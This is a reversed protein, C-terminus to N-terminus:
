GVNFQTCQASTQPIRIRHRKAQRESQGQAGSEHPSRAQAQKGWTRGLGRLRRLRGRGPLGFLDDDLALALPGLFEFDLDGVKGFEGFSQEIRGLGDLDDGVLHELVARDAVEVVRKAVHRADAQACALERKLAVRGRDPAEDRSRIYEEIADAIESVIVAVGEVQLLDLHQLAGGRDQEPATRGPADDILDALKGGEIRHHGPRDCEARIQGPARGDIDVLREGIKGLACGQTQGGHAMLLSMGAAVDRLIAAVAERGTEGEAYTSWGPKRTRIKMLRRVINGIVAQGPETRSGRRHRALIEVTEGAIEVLGAHVHGGELRFM